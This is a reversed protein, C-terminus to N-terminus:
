FSTLCSICFFSSISSSKGWVRSKLGLVILGVMAEIKNTPINKIFIEIMPVITYPFSTVTFSIIGTEILSFNISVTFISISSFLNSHCPYQPKLENFIPLLLRFIKKNGKRFFSKSLISAVTM